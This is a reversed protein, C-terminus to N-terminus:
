EPSPWRRKPAAVPLPLPARATRRITGGQNRPAANPEPEQEVRWELRALDQGHFTQFLDVSQRARLRGRQVARRSGIDVPAGAGVVVDVRNQTNRVIVVLEAIDGPDGLRGHAEPELPM